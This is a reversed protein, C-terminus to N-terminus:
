LPTTRRVTTAVALGVGALLVQVVVVTPTPVGVLLAVAWPVSCLAALDPGQAFAASAGAPLAGGPTALLPGSWDPPRRYANRVAAAGFTVSGALALVSWGADGSSLSLPVGVALTVTLATLAPVVARAARTARASLPVLRDLGPHQEASRAGHAGVVAARYGVAVLLVLLGFGSRLGPVQQAVVVLASLGVVQTWASTSRVLLLLDASVLAAVPGRVLSFARPRRPTRLRSVGQLAQGVTRLDLSLMGAGAQDAVASRSRLATVGLRDLRAAWLGALVLAALALAGVLPVPVGSTGGTSVGAAVLVVGAVPVAAVAVDSARALAGVLAGHPQALGAVAVVALGSAAGLAAHPAVAGWPAGSVVAVLALGVAGLAPGILLAQLLSPAVLGRRDVPTPVWWRVGGASVGVPGLRVATGLGAAVLALSVLMGVTAPALTPAGELSPARVADRVANAIGVALGASILLSTVLYGVDTAVQVLGGGARSALVAQTLRRLERGTFAEDPDPAPRRLPPPPDPLEM